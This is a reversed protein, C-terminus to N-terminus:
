GSASGDQELIWIRREGSPTQYARPMALTTFPASVNGERDIAVCGGQGGLKVVRELAHRTAAELPLCQLAVRAHVEHAFAARLFLEGSGTASVACSEDCAWTGAGLIPSDGIRSIRANTTGGTSTAAALNGAADCAVAGVTQGEEERSDIDPSAAALGVSEPERLRLRELQHLRYDTIFYEPPCQELGLEAALEDAEAGALLVEQERELLARALRAPNRTSRLLSVAGARQTRGCMVSADMRVSGDRRLVSGRAANFVRSDELVVVAAVVADLAPGGSAIVADGADLAATLDRRMEEIRGAPIREATFGGDGGHLALATR